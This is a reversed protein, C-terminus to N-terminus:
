SLRRPRRTAVETCASDWLDPYKRKLNSELLDRVYESKSFRPTVRSLYDLVIVSEPSWTTLPGASPNNAAAQRFVYDDIGPTGVADPARPVTGEPEAAKLLSKKFDTCAKPDSM